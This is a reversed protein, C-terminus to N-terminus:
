ILFAGRQLRLRCDINRTLNAITATVIEVTFNSQRHPSSHAHYIWAQQPSAGIPYEFEIEVLSVYESNGAWSVFLSIDPHQIVLAHRLQVNITGQQCGKIAPVFKTLTPWQHPLSGSAGGYGQAVTGEVIIM